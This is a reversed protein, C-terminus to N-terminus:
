FPVHIFSVFTIVLKSMLYHIYEFCKQARNKFKDELLLLQREALIEAKKSMQSM